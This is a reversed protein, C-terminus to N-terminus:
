QMEELNEAMKLGIQEFLARQQASVGRMLRAEFDARTQRLTEILPASQPALKLHVVRADRSDRLPTLYGKQILGEVSLSVMAKSLRRYRVIDRACDLPANHSLFMLCIVEGESLGYQGLARRCSRVLVQDMKAFRVLVQDM